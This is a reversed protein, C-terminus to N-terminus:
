DKKIKKKNLCDACKCKNAKFIDDFYEKGYDYTIEEGVKIKRCARIYIRKAREDIEAEANPKCAHNIYRAMNERGKGDIVLKENVTFLYLGGRRDAEDTSIREGTYEIILQERPIDEEAFLGLGTSSKKVKVKPRYRDSPMINTLIVFYQGGGLELGLM